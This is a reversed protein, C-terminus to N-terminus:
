PRRSPAGVDAAQAASWRGRSAGQELRARISEIGRELAAPVPDHLQTRAGSLCALLAIGAGMTGAGAVGIVGPPNV